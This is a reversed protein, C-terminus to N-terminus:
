WVVDQCRRNTQKEGSLHPDCSYNGDIIKEGESWLLVEGHELYRGLHSMSCALSCRITVSCHLKRTRIEYTIVRTDQIKSITPLFIYLATINFYRLSVDSINLRVHRYIFIILLSFMEIINIFHIM